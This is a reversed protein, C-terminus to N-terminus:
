KIELANILYDMSQARKEELISLPKSYDIQESNFIDDQDTIIRHQLELSNLLDVIRSNRSRSLISNFDKRYIISLATGHFSNTVIYSANKILGLLESPGANCIIDKSHPRNYPIGCVEIIKLKREKAVKNAVEIAKPNRALQYILLYNNKQNQPEITIKDYDSCELLLTPDLTVTPCMDSENSIYDALSKERVAISDFNRLLEFFAKKKAKRNIVEVDGVSAAYSINKIHNDLVGGFYTSDFGNTIEPNWIQDSGCIYASFNVNLENINNIKITLRLEKEIFENFKNRKKTYDKEILLKYRSWRAISKIPNKRFDVLCKREQERPLYAAEQLFPVYNIIHADIGQKILWTQTAYAQLVAGYNTAYHFTLIGIKM